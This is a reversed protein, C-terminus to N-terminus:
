FAPHLNTSWGKNQNVRDIPRAFKQAVVALERDINRQDNIARGACSRNKRWRESLEPEAAGTGTSAVDRRTGGQRQRGHAAGNSGPLRRALSQRCDHAPRVRIWCGLCIKCAKGYLLPSRSAGREFETGDGFSLCVEIRAKARGHFPIGCRAVRNQARRSADNGIRLSPCQTVPFGRGIEYIPGKDGPTIWSSQM